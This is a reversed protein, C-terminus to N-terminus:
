RYRLWMCITIIILLGAIVIVVIYATGSGSGGTEDEVEKPVVSTVIEKIKETISEVVTDDDSKTVLLNETDEAVTANYSFGATREIIPTVKVNIQINNSIQVKQMANVHGVTIDVKDEDFDGPEDYQSDENWMELRFYEYILLYM